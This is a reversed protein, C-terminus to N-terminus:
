IAESWSILRRKLDPREFFDLVVFLKEIDTMALMEFIGINIQYTAKPNWRNGKKLCTIIGESELKKIAKLADTRAIGIIEEIDKYSIEVCSGKDKIACWERSYIFDRSFLYDPDKKAHLYYTSWMYIYIDRADGRKLLGSKNIITPLIVSIEDELTLPLVRRIDIM